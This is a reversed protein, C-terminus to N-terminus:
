ILIILIFLFKGFVFIFFSINIFVKGFCVSVIKINHNNSFTGQNCICNLGNTTESCTAELHCMSPTNRCNSEEVCVYGDGYYGVNCVCEFQSYDSFLCIIVILAGWLIYLLTYM